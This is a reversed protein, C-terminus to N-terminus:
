PSADTARREALSRAFVLIISPADNFTRTAARLECFTIM